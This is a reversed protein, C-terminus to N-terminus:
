LVTIEEGVDSNIVSIGISSPPCFKPGLGFSNNAAAKAPQTAIVTFIYAFLLLHSNSSTKTSTSISVSVVGPVVIKVFFTEKLPSRVSSCILLNCKIACFHGIFLINCFGITTFDYCFYGSFDPYKIKLFRGFFLSDKCKIAKPRHTLSLRPFGALILVQLLYGSTLLFSSVVRGFFFLKLYKLRIFCILFKQIIACISCPFLVRASRKNSAVCVTVARSAWACNNSLISKSRSRPIVILDCAM